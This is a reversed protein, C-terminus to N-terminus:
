IHILSLVLVLGLAAIAGTTVISDRPVFLLMGLSLLAGLAPITYPVRFLADGGIGGLKVRLLSLNVSVFVILILASTTGALHVLDSSLSLAISLAVLTAISWHPTRTHSHVRGLWRPLLGQQAMGYLLRSGMVLNLLATNAVAFLAIVRFM